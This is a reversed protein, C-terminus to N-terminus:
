EGGGGGGEEDDRSEEECEETSPDGEERQACQEIRHSHRFPPQGHNSFSPVFAYFCSALLSSFMSADVVNVLFPGKSFGAPVLNHFFPFTSM